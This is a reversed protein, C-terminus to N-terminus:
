VFIIAIIVIILISSIILTKTSIEIYSKEFITIKNICDYNLHKQLILNYAQASELATDSPIESSKDKLWPLWTKEKKSGKILYDQITLTTNYCDLYTNDLKAQNEYLSHLKYPEKSIYHPASYSDSIYHSAVGIAFSANNFNGFKIANLSSNLWKLTLNHSPPYHHLRNDHFTKDPAISGEKLLTLNLQYKLEYPMQYYASEMITEHTPWNWGSIMLLLALIIKTKM